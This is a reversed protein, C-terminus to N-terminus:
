KLEKIHKVAVQPITMYDGYGFESYNMAIVLWEDTEDDIMRYGLTECYGLGRGTGPYQLWGTTKFSDVWVVKVLPYDQRSKCYQTKKL